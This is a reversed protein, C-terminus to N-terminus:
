HTSRQMANQLMRLDVSYIFGDSSAVYLIDGGITLCRTTMIEPSYYVSWSRGYDSSAMVAPFGSAYVTNGHRAFASVFPPQKFDVPLPLRSPNGDTGVRYYNAGAILLDTTDVRFLRSVDVLELGKHLISWTRGTDRSSYAGKSSLLIILSDASIMRLVEGGGLPRSRFSWARGSDSSSMVTGDQCASVITTGLACSVPSLCPPMLTSLDRLKRTQIDFMVPGRLEANVLVGGGFPEVSTVNADRFGLHLARATTRSHDIYGVGDERMGFLVGKGTPHLCLVDPALIPQDLSIQYWHSGYESRRYLGATGTSVAAYLLDGDVCLTRISEGNYRDYDHQELSGAHRDLTLIGNRGMGVFVHRYSAAVCTSGVLSRSTYLIQCGSPFEIIVMSDLMRVTENTTRYSVVDDSARNSRWGTSDRIIRNGALPNSSVLRSWSLGNDTTFNLTGSPSLTIISDGCTTIDIVTQQRLELGLPQWTRGSDESVMADELGCAFLLGDQYHLSTVNLQRIKSTMRLVTDTGHLQRRQMEDQSKSSITAIILGAVCLLNLAKM